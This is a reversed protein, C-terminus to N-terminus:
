GRGYRELIRAARNEWTHYTSTRLAEAGLRERLEANAKLEGLKSSWHAVDDPRAILANSGDVLIEMISPLASAIIPKGAGLYEFLKLPSCFQSTDPGGGARVVRGYPMLLIDAARLISAVRSHPVRPYVHLNPLADAIPPIEERAPAGILIFDLDPHLGALSVMLDIGRGPEFAGVYVATLRPGSFDYDVSLAAHDTPGDPKFGDHEVDIAAYPIGWKASILNALAQSIALFRVHRSRKVLANMVRDTKGLEYGHLEYVCTAHRLVCAFAVIPCRTQCLDFTRAFRFTTAFRRARQQWRGGASSALRVKFPSDVDYRKFFAQMDAIPEEQSPAVFLTTDVGLAQFAECMSMIHYAFAEDSPLRHFSFYGLKM